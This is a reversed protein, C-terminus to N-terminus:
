CDDPIDRDPAPVKTVTASLSGAVGGHLAASLRVPLALQITGDALTVINTGDPLSAYTHGDGLPMQPLRRITEKLNQSTKAEIAVRLQREDDDTGTGANYIFTQNIYPASLRAELAAIRDRLKYGMWWRWLAVMVALGLFEPWREVVLVSVYDSVTKILEEM